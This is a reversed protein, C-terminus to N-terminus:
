ENKTPTPALTPALTSLPRNYFPYLFAFVLIVLVFIDFTRIRKKYKLPLANYRKGYIAPKFNQAMWSFFTPGLRDNCDYLVDYWALSIYASSALLFGMVITHGINDPHPLWYIVLIVLSFVICKLNLYLPTGFLGGGM